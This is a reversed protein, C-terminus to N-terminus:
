VLMERSSESVGLSFVNVYTEVAEDEPNGKSTQSEPLLEVKLFIGMKLDYVYATFSIKFM